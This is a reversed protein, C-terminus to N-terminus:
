EQSNENLGLSIWAMLLLSIAWAGYEPHFCCLFILLYYPPALAAGILFKWTGTFVEDEIKPAIGYLWIWYLPLHFIKMLKNGLSGVSKVKNLVPKGALFHDVEQKNSVDVHNALLNSLTEPYNENPIDVVLSKLAKEVEKTLKLAQAPDPNVPITKGISIRALGASKKHTSYQIGIPLILPQIEPSQALAGYAMRTFGKSLPRINRVLSHNGEAFILVSGKSRLIEETKQFTKQNKPITSFGDIVRYVPLMQILNLFYTIVPNLFVAARTLFYPQIPLQTGILLPDLLANQHNAVLILPQNKPVNELGEVLIRKYYVNLAIKILFRLSTYLFIRM